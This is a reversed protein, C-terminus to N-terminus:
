GAGAAIARLWSTISEVVPPPGLVRAHDRMGLLWSRLGPVNSVRLRVVVSGDDRREVVEGLARRAMLRDLWVDVDVPDDAALEFPEDPLAAAVDFDDPIEYSGSEGTAMDGDVRDVRFNRRAGRTRDFGAVYWFGDRFLMGYPEVERDVAAYRFSLTARDRLAAYVTALRPDSPLAVTAPGEVGFGGLKLLTEDPDHGDLRVQSMALNLAVAEQETLQLDPLYYRAPDIWYAAEDGSGVTAIEVGEAALDSRDRAFQVRAVDHREPYGPVDRLIERLSRPRAIDLLYTVLDALREAKGIVPADNSM